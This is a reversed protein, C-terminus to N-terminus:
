RAEAQTQGRKRKPKGTTDGPNDPEVETAPTLGLQSRLNARPTEVLDPRAMARYYLLTVYELLLISDQSTLKSRLAVLIDDDMGVQPLGAAKQLDDKGLRPVDTRARRKAKRAARDYELTEGPEVEIDLDVVEYGEPLGDEPQDRLLGTVQGRYVLYKPM